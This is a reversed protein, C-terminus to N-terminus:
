PAGEQPDPLSVVFRSGTPQNSAIEISGHHLEVIGRAISLGL